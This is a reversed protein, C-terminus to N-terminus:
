SQRQVQAGGIEQSSMVSYDTSVGLAGSNGVTIICSNSVSGSFPINGTASNAQVPILAILTVAAIASIKKM